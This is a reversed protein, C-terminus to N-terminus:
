NGILKPVDKAHLMIDLTLFEQTRPIYLQM